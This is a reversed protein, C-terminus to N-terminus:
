FGAEHGPHIRSEFPDSRPFLYHDIVAQADAIAQEWKGHELPQYTTSTILAFLEKEDLGQRHEGAPHLWGNASAPYQGDIDIVDGTAPDVVWAHGVYAQCGGRGM